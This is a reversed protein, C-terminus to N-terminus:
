DSSTEFTKSFFCSQGIDFNVGIILNYKGDVITDQRDIFTIEGDGLPYFYVVDNLSYKDNNIENIPDHKNHNKLVEKNIDSYYYNKESIKEIQNIIYDFDQVKKLEIFDKDKFTNENGKLYGTLGGCFAAISDTDSGLMNVSEVVGKFLDKNFYFLFMYIGAVVTSIGSGKTEQDFCGLEDLVKKPDTGNELAKYIYRLQNLCIQYSKDFEKKFSKNDKEWENLWDKLSSNSIKPKKLNNKFYEGLSSLYMLRDFKNESCFKEEKLFNIALAYLIAGIIATPHGHTSISNIFVDKILLEKSDYYIGIPLVRMAAGNAGSDRYDITQKRSKFTFFNSFNNAKKRQMKRAANKITAGAGRSYNIWNVLEHKSFIDSDVILKDDVATICRLICLMLQTDDSYSGKKIQDLYGYYPGGVKKSWDKLKTIKQKNGWIKELEKEDKIFETIWGLSDGYTSLLLSTKIKSLNM